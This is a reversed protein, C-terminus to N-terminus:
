LLAKDGRQQARQCARASCNTLLNQKVQSIFGLQRAGVLESKIQNTTVAEATFRNFDNSCFAKAWREAERGLMEKTVAKLNM